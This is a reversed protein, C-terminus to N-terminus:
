EAGTQVRGWDDLRDLALGPGLRAGKAGGAAAVKPGDRIGGAAAEGRAARRDQHLASFPPPPSAAAGRGRDPPM